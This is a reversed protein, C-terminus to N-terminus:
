DQFEENEDADELITSKKSLISKYFGHYMIPIKNTNCLWLLGNLKRDDIPLPSNYLKPPFSNSSSPRGKSRRKQIIDCSKFDSSFDYKFNVRNPETSSFKIEKIKSIKISNKDNDNKWNQEDASIKFNFFDEQSMETVDYVKGTTKAMRILTIWQEPVYIVSQRKKANEIVAHMSDGENQTHGKELFRHTIDIQFFRAAFAFMSFIYHNRNQGGCNDSYLILTKVGERKQLALFKWLCSGIENPGRKAIQEHWVYCYGANNGIDYITFNYTAYKSKYYFDSVNSQPTTLVKQLDFCAVCLTKDDVALLKDADKLERAITKNKIHDEYQKQVEPSKMSDTLNNYACCVDCQDKKPKFFSINFEENFIDRYQRSTAVTSITNDKAYELYLRYMKQISLGEELYMKNSDKRIYHSPVLPFMKIHGRVSQKVDVDVKNPRTNHKGRMDSELSGGERVKKLATTVFTESISLTNLFMVKCVQQEENGIKLFYQRSYNRRSGEGAAVTAQKKNIQKVYRAIFDWQRTHDGLQWFEKFITGRIENSLKKSCKSRCTEKCPETIQREKITVGKRNKHEQGLDLCTKSKQDIWDKVNRIRKKGLKERVSRKRKKKPTNSQITDNQIDVSTESSDEDESPVYNLDADDSDVAFPDEVEDDSKELTCDEICKSTTPCEQFRNIRLETCNELTSTNEEVNCCKELFDNYLHM